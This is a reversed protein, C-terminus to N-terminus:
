INDKVKDLSKRMNDTEILNFNKKELLEIKRIIDKIMDRLIGLDKLVGVLKFSNVINTIPTSTKMRKLNFNNLSKLENLSLYLEPHKILSLRFKNYDKSLYSFNSYILEFLMEDEEKKIEDHSFKRLSIDDRVQILLKEVKDIRKILDHGLDNTVELAKIKDKAEKQDFFKKTKKAM